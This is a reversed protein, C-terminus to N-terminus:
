SPLLGNDIARAMTFGEGEEGAQKRQLNLLRGQMRRISSGLNSAIYGPLQGREGLQWACVRKISEWQVTLYPTLLSPDGGPTARCSKNFANYARRQDEWGEIRETMRTIVDPDSDRIEYAQDTM